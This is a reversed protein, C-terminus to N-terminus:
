EDNLADNISKSLIFKTQQLSFQRKVKQRAAISFKELQDRDKLIECLKNAYDEKNTLVGDLGHTIIEDPGGSALVAAVPTGCAMAEVM